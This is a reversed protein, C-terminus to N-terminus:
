PEVGFAKTKQTTFHDNDTSWSYSGFAVGLVHTVPGPTHVWLVPYTKEAIKKLAIRFKVNVSIAALITDGVRLESTGTMVTQSVPGPNSLTKKPDRAKIKKTAKDYIYDNGSYIVAAFYVGPGGTLISQQTTETASNTTVATGSDSIDVNTVTWSGSRTEGFVAVSATGGGVNIKIDNITPDVPDEGAEVDTSVNGSWSLITPLSYFLPIGGGGVPGANDILHADGAFSDSTLTPIYQSMASPTPTSPSSTKALGKNLWKVRDQDPVSVAINSATLTSIIETVHEWTIAKVVGNVGGPNGTLHTDTVTGSALEFGSQANYALDSWSWNIQILYTAWKVNVPNQLPDFRYPPDFAM